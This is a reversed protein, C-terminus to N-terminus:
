EQVTMMMRRRALDIVGAGTVSVGGARGMESITETMSLRATRADTARSVSALLRAHPTTPTVAGRVSTPTTPSKAGAGPSPDGGCSATVLAVTLALGPNSLLRKTMVSPIDTDTRRARLKRRRPLM